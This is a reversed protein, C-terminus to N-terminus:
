SGMNGMWISLNKTAESTCSTEQSWYEYSVMLTCLGFQLRSAAEIFLLFHGGWCGSGGGEGGCVCWFGTDLGDVHLKQNSQKLYIEDHLKLWLLITLM